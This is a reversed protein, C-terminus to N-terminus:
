KVLGLIYEASRYYQLARQLPVGNDLLSKLDLLCIFYYIIWGEM